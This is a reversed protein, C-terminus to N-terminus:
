LANLETLPSCDLHCDAASISAVSHLTPLSATGKAPNMQFMGDSATPVKPFPSPLHYTRMAIPTEAGDKSESHLM